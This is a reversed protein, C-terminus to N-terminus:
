ISFFTGANSQIQMDSFLCHDRKFSCSDYYQLAVGVGPDYFFLQFEKFLPYRLSCSLSSHLFLPYLLPSHLYLLLSLPSIPSCLSSLHPILFSLLTQFSSLYHFTGLHHTLVLFLCTSYIIMRRNVGQRRVRAGDRQHHRETAASSDRSTLRHGRAVPQTLEGGGGGVSM